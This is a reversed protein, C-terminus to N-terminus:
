AIHDSLIIKNNNNVTIPDDNNMKTFVNDIKTKRNKSVRTSQDIRDKFNFNTMMSLLQTYQKTM